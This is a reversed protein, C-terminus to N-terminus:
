FKHSWSWINIHQILIWSSPSSIIHGEWKEQVDGQSCSFSEEALVFFHRYSIPLHGCQQSATWGFLEQQVLETQPWDHFISHWILNIWHTPSNIFKERRTWTWFPHPLASLWIPLNLLLSSDKFPQWNDWHGGKQARHQLLSGSGQFTIEPLRCCRHSGSIFTTERMCPFVAAVPSCRSCCCPQHAKPFLALMSLFYSSKLAPTLRRYSSDMNIESTPSMVWEQLDEATELPLCCRESYLAPLHNETVLLRNFIREHFSIVTSIPCYLLKKM